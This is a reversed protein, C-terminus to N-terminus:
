GEKERKRGGERVEPEREGKRGGEGGRETGEEGM